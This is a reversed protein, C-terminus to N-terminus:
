NTFSDWDKQDIATLTTLVMQVSLSTFKGNKDIPSGTAKNISEIVMPLYTDGKYKIAVFPPVKSPFISDSNVGQTALRSLLSGDTALDVPLSWRMLQNFPDHVEKQPNSWARLELTISFKAGSSGMWIQTSNLKTVTSNGKIETLVKGLNSGAIGDVTKAYGILAGSQMLSQMMPAAGQAAGEFPSTWNSATELNSESLPAVVTIDNLRKGQADVEWISALLHKSLQGWESTLTKNIM